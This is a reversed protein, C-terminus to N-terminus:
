KVQWFLLLLLGTIMILIYQNLLGSQLKRAWQSLRQIVKGSGNVCVDDLLQVDIRRYFFDSLKQTGKVFVLNNFADFGYKNILIFYLWSLKRAFFNPWNPRLIYGVWATLVGFIMLWFPVARFSQLAMQTATHFNKNLEIMSDNAQFVVLTQAFWSPSDILLPKILFYGLILSPIALLILPMTMTVGTEHIAAPDEERPNTHFVLFFCRFTYLATVFVGVLLCLYAYHSGFLSCHHIAEIISDKSYFGSTFPLAILAFAGCLFTLYTIPMKKALGGMKRMDEEHHLAIIISGACLFLLAKFCAHTFLHFISASYASAGAGAMMYGLQSLTSYAIVRKINNQVIAILGMFLASTSGIILIVSLAVTSFQYLPSLRAMLYVGATVMTAAHILASIPTPGEMSEPLWVHLPPQASKGMAGVFIFLCIVTIVSWPHHPIITLTLTSLHPAMAFITAFDLTHCYNFIGAIGLLFAFDAVRNVYFSKLSAENASEKNFWFGILLYSMLGVAEWGFFLVLFNNAFILTLMSFTFLAIYSFFRNKALDDAMYGISYIHVLFSIFCVVLSMMVSLADVMLGVTLHLPGNGAWEYLTINIPQHHLVIFQYFLDASFFLAGGVCLIALSQSIFASLKLNFLGVAAGAILPLLIIWQVLLSINSLM